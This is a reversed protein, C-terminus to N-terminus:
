VFDRLERQRLDFKRPIELKIDFSEGDFVVDEYDKVNHLDMIAKAYDKITRPDRNMHKCAEALSVPRKERACTERVFAVLMNLRGM